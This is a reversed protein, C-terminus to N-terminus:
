QWAAGGLLAYAAVAGSGLVLAVGLAQGVGTAAMPNRLHAYPGAIVLNRPGDLPLPTGEGRRAVHWASWLGGLSALGFLTWGAPAQAPFRALELGARREIWDIALPVLALAVGWVVVVQQATKILNWAPSAPAAQRFLKVRM